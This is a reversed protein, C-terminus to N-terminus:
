GKRITEPDGLRPYTICRCNIGNAASLEPSSPYEAFEGGINILGELTEVNGDSQKHDYKDEPKHRVKSDRMSLLVRNIQRAKDRKKNLGKWTDKQSVGMVATATTRAIRSVRYDITGFFRESLLKELEAQTSDPNAAILERMQDRFTYLSEKIKASSASVANRQIGEYETEIEDIRSDVDEVARAVLDAILAEQEPQSAKQFAKLWKNVDFAEAAKTLAAMSSAKKRYVTFLKTFQIKLIEAYGAAWDTLTDDYDKYYAAKTEEAWATGTEFAAKFKGLGARGKTGQEPLAKVGVPKQVVREYSYGDESEDVEVGAMQQATNLSIINAVYLEAAAKRKEEATPQLSQITSVDFGVYYGEYGAEQQISTTIADAIYAWLPVLTNQVTGKIAEKKNSYTSNALGVNLGLALPDIGLATAIRTEPIDRLKSLELENFTYALRELKVGGTLVKTKKAKGNHSYDIAFQSEIRKIESDMLDYGEPFSLLNSPMGDNKLTSGQIRTVENDLAAMAIVSRLPSVPKIPNRVDASLWHVPVVDAADVTRFMGNGLNYLYSAVLEEPTTLAAMDGASYARFGVLQGAGNRLKHWYSAGGAVLQYATQVKLRAESQYKNPFSLARQVPDGALARSGDPKYLILAPEQFLRALHSTAISVIDNCSSGEGLLAELQTANGFAKLWLGVSVPDKSKEPLSNQPDAAGKSSIGLRDLLGM